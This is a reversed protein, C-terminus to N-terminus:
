NRIIIYIMYGIYLGVLLAGEVKSLKKEDHKNFFVLAYLLITIIVLFSFDAILEPEVTIPSIISSVGLILLINFINSGLVNGLAIDNEGKFAAVVSTVLEPLSTGVAM